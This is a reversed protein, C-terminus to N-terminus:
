HILEFIVHINSFLFLQPFFKSKILKRQNIVVGKTINIDAINRIPKDTIYTILHM